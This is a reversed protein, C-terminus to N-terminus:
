GINRAGKVVMTGAQVDHFGQKTPSQATTWLLYIFYAIGLLGILLGIGGVPSLAQILGIPGGLFVWRRIAQNQTITAGDPANGVQMSLAKQGFTGRMSVWTYIFYGASIATGVIAYVITAAWNVTTTIGGGSLDISTAPGMIAFLVISVIVNIVVLIIVDIIYAIARNPVDAYVLGPAGPVAAPAASASWGGSSAPTPEAPPPPAPAPEGRPPEDGGSPPQGPPQQETM